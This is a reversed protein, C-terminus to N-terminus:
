EAVVAELDLEKSGTNDGDEDEAGSGGVGEGKLKEGKLLTDIDEELKRTAPHGAFVIKGNGDVLVVHPVGTVGYDASATSGARQFHEVKEWQKAKVHSVVSELTKDISIGCIRVKDGWDAGRETLMHQNHAM